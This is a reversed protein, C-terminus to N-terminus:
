TRARTRRRSGRRHRGVLPRHRKGVCASRSSAAAAPTENRNSPATISPTGTKLRTRSVSGRPRCGPKRPTTLLVVLWMRVASSSPSANAGASARICACPCRRPPGTARRRRSPHPPWSPPARWRASPRASQRRVVDSPGADARPGAVRRPSARASPRRSRRTADGDPACVARLRRRRRAPPAAPQVIQQGAQSPLAFASIRCVSRSPSIAM